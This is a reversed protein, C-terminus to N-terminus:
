MARISALPPPFFATCSTFIATTLYCCAYLCFYERQFRLVMNGLGPGRGPRRSVLERGPGGRAARSWSGIRSGGRPRRSVLERDPGGGPPLAGQLWHRSRSCCRCDGDRLADCPVAGRRCRIGSALRPTRCFARFSFRTPAPEGRPAAGPYPYLHNGKPSSHPSRALHLLNAVQSLTRTRAGGPASGRSVPLLSEGEPFQGAGFHLIRLFCVYPLKYLHILRVLWFGSALHVLVFFGQIGGLGGKDKM